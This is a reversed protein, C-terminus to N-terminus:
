QMKFDNSGELFNLFWGRGKTLGLETFKQWFNQFRDWSVTGKFVGVGKHRKWQDNQKPHHLLKTPEADPWYCLTFNVGGGRLCVSDTYVTCKTQSPPSSTLSFISPCCYVLITGEDMPVVTWLSPRFYWGILLHIELDLRYFRNFVIGCHWNVPWSSLFASM